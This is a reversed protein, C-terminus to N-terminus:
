QGTLLQGQHHYVCGHWSGGFLRQIKFQQKEAHMCWFPNISETQHLTPNTIWAQDSWHATHGTQFPQIYRCCSVSYLIHLSMQLLVSSAFMVRGSVKTQGFVAVQKHMNMTKLHLVWSLDGRWMLKRTVAHSHPTFIKEHTNTVNNEDEKERNYSKIFHMTGACAHLIFSWVEGLFSHFKMTWIDLWRTTKQENPNSMSVRTTVSCATMTQPSDCHNLQRNDAYIEHHISHSDTHDTLPTTYLIFLVPGLASSQPVGFHFPSEPSKKGHVLVTKNEKQFILTYGTLCLIKWEVTIKWIHFSFTM